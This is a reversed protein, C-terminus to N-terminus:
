AAYQRLTSRRGAARTRTAAGDADADICGVAPASECRLLLAFRQESREAHTAAAAAAAAHKTKKASTTPAATAPPAATVYAVAFSGPVSESFRVVFAGVQAGATLM